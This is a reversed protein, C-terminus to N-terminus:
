RCCFETSRRTTRITTRRALTESSPRLLHFMTRALLSSQKDFYLTVRSKDEATGSVVLMDKGGITATAGSLNTLKPLSDPGMFMSKQNVFPRAYVLPFAQIGKETTVWGMTGNFGHRNDGKPTKTTFTFKGGSYTAVVPSKVGESESTGQLRLGMISKANESSIAKGYAALM